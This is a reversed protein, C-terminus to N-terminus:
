ASHPRPTTCSGAACASPRSRSSSVPWLAHPALSADVAQGAPAVLVVLTDAAPRALYRDLEGRAAKKLTHVDRVVVARREALMPPTGLLSGLTEADLAAGTRIECNFDRTSPDLAADLLSQLSADKLFDDDGHLYYVPAFERSDVAARM